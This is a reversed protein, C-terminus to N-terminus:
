VTEAWGLVAKAVDQWGDEGILWHSMGPFSTVQVGLREVTQAVTSPPNVMDAGGAAAFTPVRISGPSVQTTMFPDLWWTLTEWLARGSEPRMRDFIARRDEAPVRDLSYMEALRYDPDVAQNPFPGLAMISAASIAESFSSGAVGWPASPALLALGAVPAKAAAMQVVLGGLSHGILIPPRPEAAALEAIDKAYDSM